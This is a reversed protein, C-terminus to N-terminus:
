GHSSDAGAGSRGAAGRHEGGSDGPERLTARAPEPGLVQGPEGPRRERPALARGPFEGPFTGRSISASAPRGRCPNGSDTAESEGQARGPRDFIVGEAANDGWSDWNNSVPQTLPGSAALSRGTSLM